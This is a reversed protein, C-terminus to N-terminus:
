NKGFKLPFCIKFYPLWFFVINLLQVIIMLLILACITIIPISFSCIKGLDFPPGASGAEGDELDGVTKDKVQEMKQRLSDSILVAVNKKFKRLSAIGVNKPMVIRIPRAPADPEFYSALQFDRTARSIVPPLIGECRPREYVCYIRYNTGDQPDFRPPDPPAAAAGTDTDTPVNELAQAIGDKFTDKYVYKNVPGDYEVIELYDVAIKIITKVDVEGPLQPFVANLEPPMKGLRLADKKEQVEKLAADWTFNNQTDYYFYPATLDGLASFDNGLYEEIFEVFDVMCFLFIEQAQADDIHGPHSLLTYRLEKIGLVVTDEFLGGPDFASMDATQFEPEAQFTESGAVPIFGAHIRRPNQQFDFNLVFMPLREEDDLVMGAHVEHWGKKVGAYVNLVNKEKHISYLYQGNKDKIVWRKGADDGSISADPPLPCNEEEFRRNWQGNIDSLGDQYSPEMPFLLKAEKSVWAYEASDKVRRMVFSVSEEKDAQICKDPLGPLKCVLSAAVLYFRGQAPHYLRFPIDQNKTMEWGVQEEEWTEPQAVLTELQAPDRDLIHQLEQMFDDVAFRLLAPRRFRTQDEGDLLAKEWLPSPTQWDAQAHNM